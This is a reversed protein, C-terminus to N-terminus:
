FSFEIELGDYALQIHSPLYANTKEYDLEHSTHTLWAKEVGVKNAFDVAEDVTLHLASSTFRLASIVLVKVGKLWDFIDPDFNKIDSVYAMDGIRYANVPMKDQYFTYYSVEMEQFIVKGQPTSPLLHAELRPSSQSAYVSPKFVFHFREKIDQATVESALFPIPNERKFNLPRLDDIGASHDQHSHTFLIGDLHKIHSRMAQYRFDPGVDILLQKHNVMVLASPRLRKNFPSPSLCVECPCGLMPVGLSAGTGLFILKGKMM